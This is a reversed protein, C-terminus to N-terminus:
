HNYLQPLDYDHRMLAFNEKADADIKVGPNMVGFPDFAQKVKKMAEFLKDGLELRAYSGRARGDGHEAAVSGGLSIALKYYENSIRALRQRDGLESLNLFPYAHIIGQGARANIVVEIGHKEFIGEAERMFADMEKLPVLVEDIGPVLQMSGFRRTMLMQTLRRLQRPTDKDDAELLLAEAGNEKLKKASKKLLKQAERKKLGPFDCMIVGAPVSEKIVKDLMNPTVLKSAQLITSDYYECTHPKLDLLVEVVKELKSRDHLNVLMHTVDPRYYETKLSIHSVIGLTGKSGVFLPTLDISGDKAKVAKLNYGLNSRSKEPLAKIEADYDNLIGNISRYIEGEYTSLGMKKSFEKKSLRKTEIVDGNALVVRLGTVFNSIPGFHLSQEGGSNNGVAGGITSYEFSDPYAPIFRGHSFTLMHQLRGFNVGPELELAGRKDDFELVQNMHPTLAITVAQGIASGTLDTGSGRSVIPLVKGREALQWVFRAVKRIDSENKPSVVVQPLQQYVSADTSFHSRISSTASVEGTIHAQLYEAIKSM